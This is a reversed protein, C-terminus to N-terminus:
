AGFDCPRHQMYRGGTQKWKEKGVQRWSFLALVEVRSEADGKEVSRLAMTEVLASVVALRGVGQDAHLRALTADQDERVIDAGLCTKRFQHPKNEAIGANGIVPFISVM